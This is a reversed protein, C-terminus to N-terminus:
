LCPPGHLVQIGWRTKNKRRTQHGNQGYYIIHGNPWQVMNLLVINKNCLTEDCDGDDDDDDDPASHGIAHWGFEAWHLAWGKWLVAFSVTIWAVGGDSDGDDDADYLYDYIFIVTM